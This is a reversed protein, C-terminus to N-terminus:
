NSGNTEKHKKYMRDAMRPADPYAEQFAELTGLRRAVDLPTEEKEPEPKPLMASIQEARYLFDRWGPNLGRADPQYHYFDILKRVEEETKGTERWKKFNTAMALRNMGGVGSYWDAQKMALYFYEAMKTADWFGLLAAESESPGWLDRSVDDYGM